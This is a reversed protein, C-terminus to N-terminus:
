KEINVSVGSKFTVEYHDDYVTIKEFYTRVLTEDYETIETSLLELMLILSCKKMIIRLWM